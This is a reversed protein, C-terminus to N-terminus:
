NIGWISDSQRPQPLRVATGPASIVEVDYDEKEEVLRRNDLCYPRCV